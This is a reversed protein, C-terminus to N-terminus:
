RKRYQSTIDNTELTNRNHLLHEHVTGSVPSMAPPEIGFALSGEILKM